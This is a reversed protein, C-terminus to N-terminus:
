RTTQAGINVRGINALRAAEMVNIVSQHAAQADANITITPDHKGRTAQQLTTAIDAASTADLRTGNLAYQGDQSIAIELTPPTAQEAWTQPLTIKLQTFRVFSTTAALFILIVLLIDILPILNIDIEDRKYHDRRFNM